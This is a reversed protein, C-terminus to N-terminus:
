KRMKQEAPNPMCGIAPLIQPAMAFEKWSGLKQLQEAAGRPPLREQEMSM